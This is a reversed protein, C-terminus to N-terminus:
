PLSSFRDGEVGSLSIELKDDEVFDNVFVVLEDLLGDVGLLVHEEVHYAASLYTRNKCFQFIKKSIDIYMHAHAYTRARM